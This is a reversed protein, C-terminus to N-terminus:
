LGLIKQLLAQKQDEQLNSNSIEEEARQVVQAARTAIENNYQEQTLYTIEAGAKEAMELKEDSSFRRPNNVSTQPSTPLGLLPASQPSAPTSHLPAVQTSLPSAKPSTRVSIPASSRPAQSQLAVKEPDHFCIQNVFNFDPVPAAGSTMRTSDTSALAELGSVRPPLYGDFGGYSGEARPVSVGQPIKAFTAPAAAENEEFPAFQEAVKKEIPKAEAYFPDAGHLVVGDSENMALGPYGGFTETRSSNSSPIEESVRTNDMGPSLMGYADQSAAFTPSALSDSGTTGKSAASFSDDTRFPAFGSKQPDDAKATGPLTAAFVEFEDGNDAPAPTVSGKSADSDATVASKAPAALSSSASPGSLDGPAAAPMFFVEDGKTKEDFIMKEIKEADATKGVERCRAALLEGAEVRGYEPELLPLVDVSPASELLTKGLYIKAQNMDPNNESLFRFFKEAREYEGLEFLIIAYDLTIQPDKMPDCKIASILYEQAKDYLQRKKAILGLRHYALALDASFGYQANQSVYSSYLKEADFFRKAQYFRNAESLIGSSEGIPTPYGGANQDDVSASPSSDTTFGPISTGWQDNIAQGLFDAAYAGVGFILCAFGICGFTLLQKNM